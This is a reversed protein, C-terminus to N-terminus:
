ITLLEIVDDVEPALTAIGQDFTVLRGNMQKCLAVLHADMIQRHGSLRTLDFDSGVVRRVADAWFTHGEHASLGKLMEIALAPSTATQQVARNTSLRVFGSETIPTTAWGYKAEDLFWKRVALHAEHNPWALAFLANVDLLAVSQRTVQTM